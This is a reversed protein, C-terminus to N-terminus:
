SPPFCGNFLRAFHVASATEILRLVFLTAGAVRTAEPEAHPIHASRGSRWSTGIVVLRLYLSTRELTLTLRHAGTLLRM